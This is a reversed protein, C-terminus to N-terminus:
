RGDVDSITIDNGSHCRKRSSSSEADSSRSFFAPEKPLPLAMTENSLMSVVESMTPRDMAKEQVCLLGMQICRTVETSSCSSSLTSDMLEMSKGEKWLNWATPVFVCVCIFFSQIYKLPKNFNCVIGLLNLSHDAEFFAINKKGSIIEFLMVGFSFVDSKESFRGDVAYEPSMYGSVIIPSFANIACRRNTQGRTDNDGFIRAMGFDSIKPNMDCDLLINSTKMDRHIIRLRSYKHLYLLGQAIRRYHEHAKELGFAGTQNFLGFIFSDLSKNPMYEYILISEEAEICCGLLRVLNRHQLRCIVSIENKFENLGQRSIKSLRKVAIEQGQPLLKGPGFGGEGLKNAKAFDNTAAKITSIGFFPLEQDKQRGVNMNIAGRGEHDPNIIGKERKRGHVGSITMDFTSHHRQRSSSSDADSSSLQSWSAPEKPLAMAITENSLMSVVDAMTPRDMAREQVCLLGMQIYRTVERSSCSATLTSDVLEMSKGEKWLNWANGLLNLQNDVEFLAVNKKGSIIELLIVGFSFVDSKESFLGGMAYEPSMYGFTGVVRSTKGKTDNDTFIRAMGFDSIKPNMDSDLLINSTKLDRHIIRLRSYKHLYLLGQAIGEIIHMRRRWDLISRKTSDFIFSDLSKNPMYEYILISEEGEICCGLLRVLNRHQLKCIVSVENKFEELGQRSIESLRKVAIEQGEPLLGKYVPGFGGEGLKTAKAFDNTATQITSFSFLPLEQDKQRGLEMMNAIRVEDYQIPSANTSGMQFLRVQDSHIIGEHRTAQDNSSYANGEVSFQFELLSSFYCEGIKIGVKAGREAVCTASHSSQSLFWSLLWPFQSLWGSDGNRGMQVIGGNQQYTNLMEQQVCLVSSSTAGGRIYVIGPGKEVIKLLDKRSQYYLQCVQQGNGAFDECLRHSISWINGDLLFFQDLDGTSAMVFWMLDYRGKSFTYYADEEGISHYSFNYDNKSSTNDFIFRLNHGDWFAIDMHRGDGRWVVMKTSNAQDLTLTFLGRAPNQPSVWSVLFHFSPQTTNQGFLGLKMGPLYTDSPVDFVKGYLLITGTDVEKLVFNGTDLLTATTNPSSAVNASNVIVQLQRRDSLLLNGSRIQLVGSSDLIAAERNGVWVVKAADAKFWIGLYHNGSILDSFFGLEFVGGASVLTQNDRLTDSPTLTDTIFFIM